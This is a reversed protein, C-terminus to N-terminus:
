AQSTVFLGGTCEVNDLLIEGTGEGFFAGSHATIYDKYGLQRCVVNADPQRWYDDCVTGWEGNIAM